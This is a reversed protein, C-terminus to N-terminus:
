KLEFFEVAEGVPGVCFGIRAPLPPNSSFCIDKPEMSIEYGAKHAIEICQDVSDVELAIHRLAGEGLRDPATATIELLGGGTNLMVGPADETGWELVIEMGYLEHYFAVTQQFNELGNAKLSIHHIGKTLREM